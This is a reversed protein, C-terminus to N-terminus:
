APFARRGRRERVWLFVGIGVVALAFVISARFSVAVSHALSHSARSAGYISVLVGLGLTGGLQQMVQLMGSAAGVDQSDVGGLITATLPMFSLGVGTGLLLFPGFVSPFYSSHGNLFSLWTMAATILVAGMTLLRGIGIRPLLRPIIRSWIFVSTTTPLFAVGTEIASLHSVEQLYQAIFFFMGFMTAPVLLMGGFAAVRRADALLRLPMLANETHLQSRVFAALVVVAVVLAGITLQNGWGNSGARVLAYVLATSGLTATLAGRIDLKVPNRPSERVTRPALLILAAGIPVNVFLVSRWSVWETLAGGLILGLSGGAASVGSFVGLARRRENGEPFNSAILALASPSALAAGVGQAVRTVILWVGDQAFGGLLSATTFLVLGGILMRRRGFLDGLRSGTLLLGGFALTYANFVWSLGTASFHLAIQIKPLAINVVTADLVMMLQCTAIVLLTLRGTRPEERQLPIELPLRQLM